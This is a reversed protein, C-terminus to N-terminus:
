GFNMILDINNNFRDAIRVLTQYEKPGTYLAVQREIIQNTTLTVAPYVLMAEYGVPPAANTAVFRAAEGTLRPLNIRRISLAEAPKDPPLMAALAFFRNHAAVWIVNNAGGRYESPPIRQRCGGSAFYTAGSVDEAKSGNYWQVGVRTVDDRPGIPEATGVVWEQPPLMLPASSGNELRVKASVLYNTSLQFDKVIRLGNTLTKEARVGNTIPALKFIGDGQVAEGALLALTPATTFENLTAVRNTHSVTEPYRLLEIQKLGGGYSTFTYRANDNSVVMVEEPVNTNAVWKPAPVPSELVAPSAPSTQPPNTGSLTVPPLNTAGPPLPKTLYKPVLVYSWLVLIGLCVVIVIISTRDV